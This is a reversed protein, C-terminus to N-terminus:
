QESRYPNTPTPKFPDDLFMARAGEDWAQAMLVQGGAELVACVLKRRSENTVTPLYEVASLAAELAEDPIPLSPM